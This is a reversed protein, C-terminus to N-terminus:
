ANSSIAGNLKAEAVDSPSVFVVDQSKSIFSLQRGSPSIGLSFPFDVDLKRGDQLILVFPRFPRALRLARIDTINM